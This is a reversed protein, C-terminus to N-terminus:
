EFLLEIGILVGDKDYDLIVDTGKHDEILDHLRVSKKVCGAAGRGPHEPLELYGADDDGNYTTM